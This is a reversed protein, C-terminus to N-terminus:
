NMSLGQLSSDSDPCSLGEITYGLGEAEVGWSKDVSIEGSGRVDFPSSIWGESNVELNSSSWQLCRKSVEFEKIAWDPSSGWETWILWELFREISSQGLGKTGGRCGSGGSSTYISSAVLSYHDSPHHMKGFFNQNTLRRQDNRTWNSSNSYLGMTVGDHCKAMARLLFEKLCYEALVM